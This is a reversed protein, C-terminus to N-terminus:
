RTLFEGLFNGDEKSLIVQTAVNDNVTVIKFGGGELVHVHILGNSGSPAKGHVYRSAYDYKDMLGEEAAVLITGGRPKASM